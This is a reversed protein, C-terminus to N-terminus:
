YPWPWGHGDYRGPKPKQGPKRSPPLSKPSVLEDVEAQADGEWDVKNFYLRIPIQPLKGTRSLDGTPHEAFHISYCQGPVEPMKIQVPLPKLKENIIDGYRSHAMMVLLPLVEIFTPISMARVDDPKPINHSPGPKPIQRPLRESIIDRYESGPLKVLLPLMAIFDQFSLRLVEEPTPIKRGNRSQGDNAKDSKAQKADNGRRNQGPM